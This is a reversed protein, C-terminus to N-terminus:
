LYRYVYLTYKSAADHMNSCRRQKRKGMAFKIISNRKSNSEHGIWFSSLLKGRAGFM